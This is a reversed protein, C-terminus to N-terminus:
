EAESTSPSNREAPAVQWLAVRRRSIRGGQADRRADLRRAEMWAGNFANGQALCNTCNWSAGADNCSGNTDCMSAEFANASSTLALQHSWTWGTCGHAPQGTGMSVASGNFTFQANAHDIPANNDCATVVVTVPSSQNTGSAPSISIVPLQASAAAPVSLAIAALRVVAFRRAEAATTPFSQRM